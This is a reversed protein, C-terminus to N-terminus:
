RMLLTVQSNATKLANEPTARGEVVSEIMEAFIKEIAINDAEWWSKAFLSQQAFMGLLADDKQQEILDRRAAPRQTAKLYDLSGEQGSLWTLFTWAATQNTSGKSVAQGWYNAFTLKQDSNKTIQPLPAAGFNLHPARAKLAPAQYAYNFIMAVQGALFADISYHQNQNWTYVSLGPSAFSTYFTLADRGPNAQDPGIAVPWAFTAETKKEDTMQAGSQMMLAMLLDTSRHINKATGLAAGALSLNNKSDKNTLRTVAQNFEDWTEPPSALGASNFLDKNYFLALTDVSLPLAYVQNEFVFDQAAVDVFVESFRKASILTEPAPALKDQHKPLWTNHISFIDPGRGSALADILEKEYTDVNKKSYNVSIYPYLTKFKTILPRYLDSDDFVSWFELTMAAPRPEKCPSLGAFIGSFFVPIILFSFLRIRKNKTM